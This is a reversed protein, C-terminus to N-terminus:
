KIKILKGHVEDLQYNVGLDLNHSAKLKFCLKQADINIQNESESLRNMKAQYEQQLAMKEFTLEQRRSALSFAEKAESLSLSIRDVELASCSAVLFAGVLIFKKM